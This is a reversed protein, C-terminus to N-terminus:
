CLLPWAACTSMENSISNLTFEIYPQIVDYQPNLLPASSQWPAGEGQVSFMNDTGAVGHTLGAGYLKCNAACTEDNRVRVVLPCGKLVRSSDFSVNLNYTGSIDPTFVIDYTGPGLELVDAQFLVTTGDLVDARVDAKGTFAKGFQDYTELRLCYRESVFADENTNPVKSHHECARPQQCSMRFPSGQVPTSGVTLSIRYEGTLPAAYSVELLGDELQKIDAKVTVNGKINAKLDVVQLCKRGQFIVLVPQCCCREHQLAGETKQAGCSSSSHVRGRFLNHM